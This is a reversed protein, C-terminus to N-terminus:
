PRQVVTSARGDQTGRRQRRRLLGGALLLALVGGGGGQDSACGCGKDGSDVGATGASDGSSDTTGGGSSDTAGGGTDAGGDPWPTCNEPDWADGTPTLACTQLPTSCMGALEAAPDLSQPGLQPDDPGRDHCSQASEVSEGTAMNTVRVTLCFPGADRHGFDPTLTDQVPAGDVSWTFRLLGATAGTVGPDAKPYVSLQGTGEKRACHGESWVVEVLGCAASNEEEAPVAGDCCVLNDLAMPGSVSVQQEATLTPAPLATSPADEVVFEFDLADSELCGANDLLGTAEYTGAALPGAPRWLLINKVGAGELAGAVPQGDLTVDLTVRDLFDQLDKSGSAELVLLGDSPIAAANYPQLSDWAGDAVCPAPGTTSCAAAERAHLGAVLAVGALASRLPLPRMLMM